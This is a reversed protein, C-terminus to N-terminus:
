LIQRKYRTKYLLKIYRRRVSTFATLNNCISLWHVTCQTLYEQFHWSTKNLLLLTARQLLTVRRPAQNTSLHTVMRLKVM